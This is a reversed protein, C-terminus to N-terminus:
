RTRMYFCSDVRPLAERILALGGHSSPASPGKGPLRLVQLIPGAIVCRLNVGVRDSLISVQNLSVEGSRKWAGPEVAVNVCRSKIEPSVSLVFQPKRTSDLVVLWSSWDQWAGGLGWHMTRIAQAKIVGYRIPFLGFHPRIQAGLNWLTNAGFTPLTASILGGISGGEL